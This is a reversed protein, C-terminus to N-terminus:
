SASSRSIQKNGCVPCNPDQSLRMERFEMTTADLILLRGSLTTGFDALIKIAETAQISGIIGVIPSLVGNESCTAAEEDQDESYLCRYCAQDADQHTFVCVQGELRIAAGSVLPTSELACARNIAFRTAFNDSADIVIDAARVATLLSDEDLKENITFIEIDPNLSKLTKTRM